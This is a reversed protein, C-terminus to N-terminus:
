SKQLVLKSRSNYGESQQFIAFIETPDAVLNVPFCTGIDETKLSSIQWSYQTMYESSDRISCESHSWLAPPSTTNRIRMNFLVRPNCEKTSRSLLCRWLLSLVFPRSRSFSSWSNSSYVWTMVLFPLNIRCSCCSCITQWFLFSTQVWIVSAKSMICSFCVMVADYSSGSRGSCGRERVWIGQTSLGVRYCLCM